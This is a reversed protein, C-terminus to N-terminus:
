TIDRKEFVVLGVGLAAAVVTIPAVIKVATIRIEEAAALGGGAVEQLSEMWHGIYAFILYPRLGELISGLFPGGILIIGMTLGVAVMPQDTWVSVLLGIAVVAWLPGLTMLAVKLVYGWMEGAPLHTYGPYLPDRIDGLGFTLSSSAAGIAWVGVVLIATLAFLLSAKGLFWERRRIPRALISRLTGRSAEGSVAGASAIGVAVIALLLGARASIALAEFGGPLLGDRGQIGRLEHGLRLLPPTVGAMLIPALILLVSVRQRVTRFLEARFELAMRGIM